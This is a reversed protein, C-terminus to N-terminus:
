LGFKDLRRYFASRSLGLSRCAAMVNGKNSKLRQAIVDKEIESLTMEEFGPSGSDAEPAIDGMLMLHEPEIVCGAILVAREITHSLERVNGPWSYDLLARLAQPSLEANPKKYKKATQAIFQRCLEPIDEVRERLSPLRLILTNIRYLLDQRFTGNVVMGNLDANSACILRFDAQQTKSAGLKEFQREELVRLLKAQQSLPVNAIEDLFLTGKDALEFRGIREERADTFAGKKHGFMESEFLGENIAGMNVSVLLGNRRSSLQHIYNVLLSKGTGNEGLLLISADTASLQHLQSLLAQMAASHAVPQTPHNLGLEQKLLENEEALTRSKRKQDMLQCQHQLVSVLRENNWPKEIFDGAGKQLAAVALEISAWGTMVVIALNEDVSKLWPILSLGEEGSTTDKDYNLDMLILDFQETKVFYEIEQINNAFTLQYDQHKLLMRLGALIGADDDAILLKKKTM